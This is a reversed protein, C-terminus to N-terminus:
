STCNAFVELHINPHLISVEEDEDEKDAKAAREAVEEPTLHTGALCFLDRNTTMSWNHRKVIKGVPLSAFFRDMSKELKESYSPVPGHIDALKMGLKHPTNFGSPFCTVFGELRYKGADSADGDGEPIPLLFLFDDDINAGIVRLAEEASSPKLPLVEGTVHNRLGTSPLITFLTPFHRPLYTTILWDYFELVATSVVPKVALVDSQRNQILSKRLGIRSLYTNDMAVLDSLTTNEIATVTLLLNM